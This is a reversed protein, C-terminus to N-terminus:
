VLEKKLERWAELKGKELWQNNEYKVTMYQKEAEKEKKEAFDFVVSLAVNISNDQIKQVIPLVTDCFHIDTKLIKELRGLETGLENWYKENAKQKLATERLSMESM